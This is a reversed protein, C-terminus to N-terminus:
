KGLEYEGQTTIQEASTRPEMQGYKPGFLHKTISNGISMYGKPNVASILQTYNDPSVDKLFSSIRKKYENVVFQFFPDMKKGYVNQFYTNEKNSENMTIKPLSDLLSVIPTVDIEGLKSRDYSGNTFKDDFSKIVEGVKNSIDQNSLGVYKKFITDQSKLNSKTLVSAAILRLINNLGTQISNINKPNWSFMSSERTESGMTIIIQNPFSPTSDTKLGRGLALLGNGSGRVKLVRWLVGDENYYINAKLTGKEDLMFNKKKGDKIKPYVIFEIFDAPENARGVPKFLSLNKTKTFTPVISDEWGVLEWVSNSNKENVPLGYNSLANAKIPESSTSGKIVEFGSQESIVRRVIRELDSESLRIVKKM